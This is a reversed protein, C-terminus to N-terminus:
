KTPCLIRYGKLNVSVLRRAWLLKHALRKKRYLSLNGSHIQPVDM